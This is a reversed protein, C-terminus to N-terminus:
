RKFRELDENTLPEWNEYLDPTLTLTSSYAIACMDPAGIRRILVGHEPINEWWAPEKPKIRYESDVEFAPYKIRMWEGNPYKIEVEAGEAYAHIVDAHKHRM